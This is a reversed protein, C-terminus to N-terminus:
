GALGTTLLTALIFQAAYYLPLGVLRNIDADDVFRHRAVTLDSLYFLVAGIPIWITAGALAAAVAVDVMLTIAVVYALVPVRMREPLHPWLWRLVALAPLALAAGVVAVVLWSLPLQAFAVTYAVHALLFSVLGALFWGRSSRPLLCVDGVAALCVGVFFVPHQALRPGLAGLAVFASSALVKSIVRLRDRRQRARVGIRPPRREAFLLALLALGGIGYFVGSVM